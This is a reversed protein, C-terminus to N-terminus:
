RLSTGVTLLSSSWDERAVGQKVKEPTLKKKGYTSATRLSALQALGIIIKRATRPQKTGVWSM